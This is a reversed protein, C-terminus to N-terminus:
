VDNANKDAELNRQRTELQKMNEMLKDIAAANKNNAQRLLELLGNVTDHDQRHAKIFNDLNKQPGEGIIPISM